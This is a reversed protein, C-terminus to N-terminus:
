LGYDKLKNLLTKYSIGLDEATRSKNGSNNELAEIIKKREVLALARHAVDSLTGSLDLDQVTENNSNQNAIFGLDRPELILNDSLICAREIANELERVNGPWNHKRVETVAETSLVAERGRIEQGIQAAFHHALLVIDDERDRLAPIELPFVALRFFLDGRFEGQEVATKLNKNTAAVVRVDVPVPARGGIRDIVKEEIARLLKGQVALPMEGIEDLFVTGGSALEFKGQRRDNAGTFAGREHGFLENEILTEPIAACNIAVFPKDRRNSLHHVARAFLEKGTGSEGLLLVTAETQAVRQTEGVTRKIVESEGIIRPFGYRRSWDEKLLINETRLRAQELARDVLLLLHNSDVPKQLFDHAGDKMAQVAEDISGFATVVIVPVDSDAARAARLVDLGSGNPMRLDTLVLRHRTTSIENAASRADASETVSYGANELTLRMVNRLSAKDEVLLIDSM